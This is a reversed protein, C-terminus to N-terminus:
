YNTVCIWTLRSKKLQFNVKGSLTACVCDLEKGSSSIKGKWYDIVDGCHLRSLLTVHECSITFDNGAIGSEPCKGAVTLMFCFPFRSCQDEIILGCVSPLLM